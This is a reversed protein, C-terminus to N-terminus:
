GVDSFGRFGVVRIDRKKLEQLHDEASNHGSISSWTAGKTRALPRGLDLTWSLNYQEYKRLPHPQTVVRPRHTCFVCKDSGRGGGM